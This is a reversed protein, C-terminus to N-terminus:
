IFSIHIDFCLLCLLIAYYHKARMFAVIIHSQTIKLEYDIHFIALTDRCLFIMLLLAFLLHIIDFHM